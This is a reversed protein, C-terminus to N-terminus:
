SCVRHVSHVRTCRPIRQHLLPLLVLLLVLLLLLLLNQNASASASDNASAPAPAPAPSAPAATSPPKGRWRQLIVATRHESNQPGLTTLPPKDAPASPQTNPAAFKVICIQLLRCFCIAPGQGKPTGIGGIPFVSPMRALYPRAHLTAIGRHSSLVYQM